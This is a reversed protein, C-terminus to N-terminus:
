QRNLWQMYDYNRPEWHGSECTMLFGVVIYLLRLFWSSIGIEASIKGV